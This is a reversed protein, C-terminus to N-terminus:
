QARAQRTVEYQLARDFAPGFAEKYAAWAIQQINIRPQYRPAQRLIHLVPFFGRRYGVTLPRGPSGKGGKGSPKDGVRQAIFKIRGSSDRMPFYDLSSRKRATRRRSGQGTTAQQSGPDVDVKLRSLIRKYESGKVNGQQDIKDWGTQPTIFEGRRLLGSRYLKVETSKPDRTGGAALLQMYRGSPVGMKSFGPSFGMDTPDNDGYNWGVAAVMLGAGPGRRDAQRTRDARWYRLGRRTWATPGGQIRPLVDRALRDRAAKVGATAAIASIKDQKGTLTACWSSLRSIERADATIM